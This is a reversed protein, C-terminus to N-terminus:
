IKHLMKAINQLSNEERLL